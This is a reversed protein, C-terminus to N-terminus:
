QFSDPIKDFQGAAKKAAFKVPNKIAYAKVLADWKPQRPDAKVEKEEKEKAM